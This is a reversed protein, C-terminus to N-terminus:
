PAVPWDLTWPFGAQSTLDRLAQRYLAWAPQDIPADLVQTWDSASLKANRQARVEAAQAQTEEETPPRLTWQQTWAGDVLTPALEVVVHGSPAPMQTVPVVGFEGLLADSIVEPMSVNPFAARVEHHLKYVTQTQTNIWM